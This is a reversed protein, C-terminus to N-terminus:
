IITLSSFAPPGAVTMGSARCAEPGTLHPRATFRPGPAGAAGFLALASPAGTTYASGYYVGDFGNAEFIEAWLQPIGYDEMTVLARVIDFRAAASSSVAACKYGDPAAVISVAFSTALARSVVGSASVEDRIKERVATEARTAVCCTGRPSSLNFRGHAGSDFWWTGRATSHARYLQAGAVIQKRPLARYSRAPDPPGQVATM